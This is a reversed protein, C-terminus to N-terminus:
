LSACVPPLIGHLLGDLREKKLNVEAMSHDLTALKAETDNSNRASLSQCMSGYLVERGHCHIPMDALDIGQSELEELSQVLPNGVFILSDDSDDYYLEGHLKIDGSKRLRRTRLALTDVSGRQSTAASCAASTNTSIGINSFPCEKLFDISQLSNDSNRRSSKTGKDTENMAYQTCDNAGNRSAPVGSDDTETESRRQKEQLMEDHQMISQHDQLDHTAKDCPQTQLSFHNDTALMRNKRTVFLFPRNTRTRLDDFSWAADVPQAIHFLKRAHMGYTDKKVRSALHKGLSIIRLNQDVVFHWPFVQNVMDKGFSKTAM